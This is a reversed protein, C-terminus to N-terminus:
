CKITVNILQIQTFIRELEQCNLYNIIFYYFNVYIYM